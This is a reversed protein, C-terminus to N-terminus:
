ISFKENRYFSRVTINTLLRMTINVPNLDNSFFSRKICNKMSFFEFSIRRTGDLLEKETMLKPKINIKGEEYRSWDHSIIRGESELREFLRTGPYPTIISFSAEDLGWDFIAQLTRDFTDTTDHDLGFIFFGAVLMGHDKIKQIAKAYNDVQNTGKGAQDINAQSISEVGLYWKVVGAERALQLFEDDRALTNINGFCDFKKNVEKM